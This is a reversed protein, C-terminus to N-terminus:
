KRSKKKDKRRGGKGGGLSQRQLKLRQMTIRMKAEPSLSEYVEAWEEPTAAALAADRERAEYEIVEPYVETRKLAKIAKIVDAGFKVDEFALFKMENMAAAFAKGFAAWHLEIGTVDKDTIAGGIVDIGALKMLLAQLPGILPERDDLGKQFCIGEIRVVLRVGDLIINQVVSHTVGVGAIKALLAAKNHEFYVGVPVQDKAMDSICNYPIDRIVNARNNQAPVAFSVRQHSKSVKSASYVRCSSTVVIVVLLLKVIKNMM